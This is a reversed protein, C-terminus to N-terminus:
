GVCRSDLGVSAACSGNQPRGSVMLIGFFNPPARGRASRQSFKTVQASPPLSLLALAGACTSCYLPRHCREFGRSWCSTPMTPAPMGIATPAAAADRSRASPPMATAKKPSPATALPDNGSDSFKAVPQFSRRVRRTSADHGAPWPVPRPLDLFSCRRCSRSARDDQADLAKM